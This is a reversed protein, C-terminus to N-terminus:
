AKALIGDYVYYLQRQIFHLCFCNQRGRHAVVRRKKEKDFSLTREGRAPPAVSSVRTANNRNYTTNKGIMIGLRVWGSGVVRGLGHTKCHNGVYNPDHHCLAGSLRALHHRRCRDPGERQSHAKEVNVLHDLRLRRCCCCCSSGRLLLGRSRCDQALISLAM